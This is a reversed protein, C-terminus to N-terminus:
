VTVILVGINGFSNYIAHNSHNTAYKQLATKGPVSYAIGIVWRAGPNLITFNSLKLIDQQISILVAAGANNASEIKLEIAYKGSNDQVGIDLKMAGFPDPYPTERVVQLGGVQRLLLNLEVQMWIEWAAGTSIAQTIRPEQSLIWNSLDQNNMIKRKELNLYKSKYKYRNGFYIESNQYQSSNNRDIEGCYCDCM